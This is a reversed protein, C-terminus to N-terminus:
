CQKERLKLTTSLDAVLSLIAEAVPNEDIAAQQVSQRNAELSDM